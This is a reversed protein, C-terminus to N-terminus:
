SWELTGNAKSFVEDVGNIHMVGDMLTAKWTNKVRAIKEFQCVILNGSEDDESEDDDDSLDDGLDAQQVGTADPGDVQPVMAGPVAEDLKRKVGATMVPKMVEKPQGIRLIM